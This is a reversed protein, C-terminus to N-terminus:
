TQCTQGKDIEDVLSAGALQKRSRSRIKGALTKKFSNWSCRIEQWALGDGFRGNLM